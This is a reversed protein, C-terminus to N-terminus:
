KKLKKEASKYCAHTSAYSESNKKMDDSYSIHNKEIKKIENWNTVVEDPTKEQKENFVHPHRRILKECIGHIVDDVTFMQNDKAIQSHFVVQLLLDGLEEKLNTMDKNDIAELVEYVEELTANRLTDHTQVRDWPCGEDSRLVKIIMLLDEFSYDKGDKDLKTMIIM